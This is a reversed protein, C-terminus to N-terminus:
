PRPWVPAQIQLGGTSEEIGAARLTPKRIETGFPVAALRISVMREVVEQTHDETLHAYREVAKLTRHGMAEKLQLLTAGSMALYSAFTHRLDHFRFTRLSPLERAAEELAAAWAARIAVPGRGDDRPFLWLDEAVECGYMIELWELHEMLCARLTPPIDVARTEGNKTDTLTARAYGPDLDSLKLKLIEGKRAGTALAFVVIPFLLRNDSRLCAELLTAREKESLFRM